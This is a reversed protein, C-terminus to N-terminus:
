GSGCCRPEIALVDDVESVTPRYYIIIIIIIIIFVVINITSDDHRLV